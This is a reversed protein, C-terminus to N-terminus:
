VPLTFYFTAGEGPKGEAWVRGGHKKIIRGVIALGIGTGEFEEGHLRQFVGFLKHAYEMEFGAGNDKVYYVSEKGEVKGGFEVKADKRTGTFKIANGLLNAVVMRIMARDGTAPPLAKIEVEVTRGHAAEKLEVLVENVLKEMNIKSISVEKRGMRSFALIDSILQGMKQTKDRVIKFLRKAEDDLKEGHEEMLIRSFGDIARLPTRLDHSVSYSFSELEKNADELEGAHRLLDENLSRISMEARKLGLGLVATVWIAFLALFRNALVKWLEGGEPSIFFGMVTLFSCLIAMCIVFNRDAGRLSVLIVAIYPVGGAVGLPVSVDISFFVGALVLCLLILYPNIRETTEM